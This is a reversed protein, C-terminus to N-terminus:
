WPTLPREVRTMKNNKLSEKPMGSTRSFFFVLIQFAFPFFFFFSPTDFFPDAPRGSFGVAM